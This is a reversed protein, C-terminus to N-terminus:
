VGRVLVEVESVDLKSVSSRELIESNGVKMVYEEDSSKNYSAVETRRKADEDSLADRITSVTINAVGLARVARSRARLKKIKDPLMNPATLRLTVLRGEEVNDIDVVESILGIEYEAVDENSVSDDASSM